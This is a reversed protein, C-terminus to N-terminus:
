LSLMIQLKLWWYCIYWMGNTLFMIKEQFDAHVDIVFIDCGM